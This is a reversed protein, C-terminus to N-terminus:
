FCTIILISHRRVQHYDYKYQEEANKREEEEKRKKEAEQQKRQVASQPIQVNPHMQQVKALYSYMFNSLLVQSYLARKPNALKIHAMRYIAREEILSFRTWNYDMDPRLVRNPPPVPSVSRQAKNKASDANPTKSKKFLSSFINDKEKKDSGKRQQKPRDSTDPSTTRELVLSSRTQTPNMQQLVDLRVADSAVNKKVKRNEKEKEDAEQQKKNTKSFFGWGKKGTQEPEEKKLKKEPKKEPDTLTPIITLSDTRSSDNLLPSPSQTIQGLTQNPPTAMPVGNASSQQRAMPPRRASRTPPEEKTPSEPSRCM